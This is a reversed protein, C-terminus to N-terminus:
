DKFLTARNLNILTKLADSKEVNVLKATTEKFVGWELDLKYFVVQGKQVSIEKLKQPTKNDNEISRLVNDAVALSVSFLDGAPFAWARHLKYAELYINEKNTSLVYYTGFSIEALEVGSESVVWSVGSGARTDERFIVVKIKDQETEIDSFIFGQQQPFYSKSVCGYQTSVLFLIFIVKLYKM